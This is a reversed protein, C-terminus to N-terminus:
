EAEEKEQKKALIENKLTLAKDKLKPSVGKEQVIKGCYKIALDYEQYRFGMEALLLNFTSEDMGCIPFDEQLAAKALGDYAQRYYREEKNRLQTKQKEDMAGPEAEAEELWGRLLWAAQLCLYAQESLIDEMAIANLLALEQLYVARGYDITDGAYPEGASFKLSVKEAVLKKQVPTLEGFRITKASYGCYPCSTICYKISDISQFRPRLDRDPELRRLKSNRVRLDDFKMECIACVMNKKFLFKKEEEKDYLASM